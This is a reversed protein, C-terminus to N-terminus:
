DSVSYNVTADNIRASWPTVVRGHLHKWKSKENLAM